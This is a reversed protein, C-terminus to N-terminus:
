RPRQPPETASLLTEVEEMYRDWPILAYGRPGQVAYYALDLRLPLWLEPAERVLAPPPKPFGRPRLRKPFLAFRLAFLRM